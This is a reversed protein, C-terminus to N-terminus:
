EWTSQFTGRASWSYRAQSNTEVGFSDSIVYGKFVLTYSGNHLRIKFTVGEAAEGTTSLGLAMMFKGTDQEFGQAPVASSVNLTTSMAGPSEGAYQKALTYVPNSNTAREISISAAEVLEKGNVEIKASTYTSLQTTQVLAM